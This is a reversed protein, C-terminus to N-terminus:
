AARAEPMLGLQRMFTAVDYYTHIGVIKGESLRLVDCFHVEVHRGTPPVEMNPGKLTGTHTGRGVFEVIVWDGSAVVNQIDVKSDPFATSWGEMFQEFGRPGRLTVGQPIDVLEADEAIQAMAKNFNRENYGEYTQRAIKENDHKWFM